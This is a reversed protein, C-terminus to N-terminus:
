EVRKLWMYDKTKFFASFAAKMANNSGCEFTIPKDALDFTVPASSCWDIKLQLTHKGDHASFDKSEGQRIDGIEAGDLLVKYARLKDAYGKKDRKIIIM